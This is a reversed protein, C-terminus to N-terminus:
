VGAMRLQRVLRDGLVRTSREDMINNGTINVIIGGGGMAGLKSLPVVAEAGREGVMAITPRKVIGGNALKPISKQMQSYVTKAIDLSVGGSRAITNISAQADASYEAMRTPAGVTGMQVRGYGEVQQFIRGDEVSIGNGAQIDKQEKLKKNSEDIANALNQHEIQLGLLTNQYKMAENSGEGYVAIIDQLAQKAVNIQEAVAKQQATQMELQKGLGEVSEKLKQNQSTWLDFKLKINDTVLRVSDTVAGFAKGIIEAMNIAEKEPQEANKKIGEALGLDIMQGYEEFLKSPSKISLASKFGAAISSAVNRAADIAAGMAGTIGNVLGMVANRGVEILQSPLNTFASVIGSVTESAKASGESIMNSGWSILESLANSLFSMIQSPLQQFFNVIGSLVASGTSIAQSIMSSGWSIMSSLANSLFSMIRSPLQQFFNVISSLVQSGISVAQSLMNSGWSIMSSLANSLFTSIRSPLQSFWQIVSNVANVVLSVLLGAGYGVMYPIQQTFLQSLFAGARSPLQQFWNVINNIMNPITATFFSAVATWATTAMTQISTWLGSFFSVLGTWITTAFTVIGTWVSSIWTTFATWAAVATTQISTWIGSFLLGFIALQAKVLNVIGTLAGTLIGTIATWAGSLIQKIGEWVLSWNGSILGGFINILGTIIMVAGQIIAKITNWANTVVASMIPWVTNWIAQIAGMNNTIAAVIQTFAGSITVWMSQVLPVVFASIQQFAGNVVTRVKESSMYLGAFAAVLLAIGGVVAGVPTLIAGLVTSIGGLVLLLPGIAAVLALVVVISQQTAPSLKAFWAVVNQLTTVLASLPGSNQQTMTIGLNIFGNKLLKLQGELTNMKLRAVEEATTDGLKAKFANVGEAGEKYLFGAARLADTGFLTELTAMRQADTMGGLSTRLLGAIESLSKLKGSADIFKSTGDATALGLQQFLEKQKATQPQLNLLMTKLSTGADSGRLGNNSLLGLATNVDEFSMGALVAAGASMSLGLRLDNIDAASTNATNALINAAQSVTMNEDKFANLATSALEAAEKVSIEGAAALDLAGKLGGNLIDKTSLGAKSLEAIGQAAEISSFKTTTGMKMAIQEFQKLEAGTSGGLAKINAMAQQFDSGAKIAAGGILVLPATVALSMSQGMSTMSSGVSKFKSSMSAAMQSFSSDIKSGMGTMQSEFGKMQATASSLGKSVGSSDVTLKVNIDGM